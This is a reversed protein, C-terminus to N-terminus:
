KKRKAQVVDGIKMIAKVGAIIGALTWSRWTFAAGTEYLFIWQGVVAAVFTKLGTRIMQWATLDM